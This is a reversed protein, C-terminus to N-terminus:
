KDVRLMYAKPYDEVEPATDIYCIGDNIRPKLLEVVSDFAAADTARIVIFLPKSKRTCM